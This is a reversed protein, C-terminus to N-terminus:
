RDTLGIGPLFIRKASERWAFNLITLSSVFEVM